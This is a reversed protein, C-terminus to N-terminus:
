SESNGVDTRAIGRCVVKQFKNRRRVDMATMQSLAKNFYHVTNLLQKCIIILLYFTHHGNHYVQILM